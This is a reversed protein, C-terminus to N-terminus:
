KEYMHVDFCDWFGHPLLWGTFLPIIINQIEHETISVGFWANMVGYLVTLGVCIHTLCLCWREQRQM